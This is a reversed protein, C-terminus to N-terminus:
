RSEEPTHFFCPWAGKTCRFHRRLQVLKALHLVQKARGPHGLGSGRCFLVVM